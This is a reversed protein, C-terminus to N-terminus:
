SVLMLAKRGSIMRCWIYPVSHIAMKLCILSGVAIKSLRIILVISMIKIFERKLLIIIMM